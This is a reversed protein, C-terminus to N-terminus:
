RKGNIFEGEFSFGNPMTYTGHGHEWGDKFEGIYTGDNDSWVLTGFGNECDGKVCEGASEVAFGHSSILCFTLVSIITVLLKGMAKVM